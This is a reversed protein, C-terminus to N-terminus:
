RRPPPVPTEILPHLAVDIPAQERHQADPLIAYSDERVPLHAYGWGPTSATVHEATLLWPTGDSGQVYNGTGALEGDDIDIPAQGNFPFRSIPTVLPHVAEAMADRIQYLVDATGMVREPPM